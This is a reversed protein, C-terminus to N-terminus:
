DIDIKKFNIKKNYSMNSDKFLQRHLLFNHLGSVISIEGSGCSCFLESQTELCLAGSGSQYGQM